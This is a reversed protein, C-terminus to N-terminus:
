SAGGERKASLRGHGATASAFATLGFVAPVQDLADLLAEVEAGTNYLAFSARTTASVKM